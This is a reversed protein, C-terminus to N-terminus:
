VASKNSAQETKLFFHYRVVNRSVGVEVLIEQRTESDSFSGVRVEMSM